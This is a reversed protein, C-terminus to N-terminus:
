AQRLLDLTEWQAMQEYMEATFLDGAEDRTLDYQRMLLPMLYCQDRVTPSFRESVERLLIRAEYMQQATIRQPDQPWHKTIAAFLCNRVALQDETNM